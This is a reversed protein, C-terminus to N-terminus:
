RMAEDAQKNPRDDESDTPLQHHCPNAIVLGAILDSRRLPNWNVSSAEEVAQTQLPLTSSTTAARIGKSANRNRKKLLWSCDAPMAFLECSPWKPGLRQFRACIKCPSRQSKGLRGATQAGDVVALKKASAPVLHRLNRAMKVVDSLFHSDPSGVGWDM